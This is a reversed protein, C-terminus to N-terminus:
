TDAAYRTQLGGGGAAGEPDELRSGAAASTGWPRIGPNFEM